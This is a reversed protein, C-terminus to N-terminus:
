DHSERYGDHDHASRRNSKCKFTYAKQDAPVKQVQLSRTSDSAFTAGVDTLSGKLTRNEFEGSISWGGYGRCHRYHTRLTSALRRTYRDRVYRRRRNRRLRSRYLPFWIKDDAEAADALGINAGAVLNITDAGPIPPSAGTGVTAKGFPLKRTITFAFPSGVAVLSVNTVVDGPGDTDIGSTVAIASDIDIVAPPAAGAPAKATKITFVIPRTHGIGGAGVVATVTNSTRTITKVHGTVAVESSDDLHTFSAITPATEAVTLVVQSNEPMTGAPTYTVKLVMPEEFFTVYRGEYALITTEDDDPNVPQFFLTGNTRALATTGSGDAAPGVTIVFPDPSLALTHRPSTASWTYAKAIKPAPSRYVFTVSSNSLTDKPVIAVLSRAYIEGVLGGTEDKTTDGAVDLASPQHLASHWDGPIPVTIKSAVNDVTGEDTAADTISIVITIDVSAGANIEDLGPVTTVTVTAAGKAALADGATLGLVLMLAVIGFVSM